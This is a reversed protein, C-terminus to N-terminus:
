LSIIEARCENPFNDCKGNLVKYKIREKSSTYMRIVFGVLSSSKKIGDSLSFFYGSRYNSCDKLAKDAKSIFKSNSSNEILNYVKFENKLTDLIGLMTSYSKKSLSSMVSDIKLPTDSVILFLDEFDVYSLDILGSAYVPNFAIIYSNNQNTITQNFALCKIQLLVAIMVTKLIPRM